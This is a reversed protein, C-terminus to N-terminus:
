YGNNNVNLGNRIRYMPTERLMDPLRERFADRKENSGRREQREAIFFRFCARRDLFTRLVDHSFATRSVHASRM